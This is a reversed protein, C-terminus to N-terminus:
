KKWNKQFKIKKKKISSLLSICKIEKLPKYDSSFTNEFSFSTKNKTKNPKIHILFLKKCAHFSLAYCHM